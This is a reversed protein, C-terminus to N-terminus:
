EAGKSLFPLWHWVDWKGTQELSGKNLHIKIFNFALYMNSYNMARQLSERHLFLLKIQSNYFLNMLLRPPAM